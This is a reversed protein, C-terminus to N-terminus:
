RMCQRQLYHDCLINEDGVVVLINSTLTETTIAVMQKSSKRKVKGEQKKQCYEGLFVTEHSRTPL